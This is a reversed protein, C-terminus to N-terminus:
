RIARARMLHHNFVADARTGTRWSKVPRLWAAARAAFDVGTAQYTLWIAQAAYSVNNRPEIRDFDDFFWGCSTFARQREFQAALLLKLQNLNAESLKMTAHTAILEELGMEALIVQIYNHRLEWPDAVFRRAVEYYQEDVMEAIANLAQRLPLKWESHPTCNCVGSWRTVGHLCSWSTPQRIRITRTVPFQRLWLAPYTAEVPYNKLAGGMLYALFKDRFPQHHGYLEGDSAVLVLQPTGDPMSRFKPLLHQVIFQDANVTSGPDFSIRTSLDQNYFFAVIQRGEPLLVRYPQSPDLADTDAQWPALIVYEIGQAALVSLTELDVGAEPLWMGEPQHGFRHRFDTIGWRVQTIKDQLTALPLITHHYSQAMANGVGNRELNWRDQEIIKSLSRADYEAMWDMLTPGMNFSIREFNGLLANPRYCHDHIRENWNQYPIAGAELPIEGTLPDERPPQYFHGHISFAQFSM